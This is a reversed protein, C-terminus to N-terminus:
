GIHRYILRGAFTLMRAPMHSFIYKATKTGWGDSSDFFSAHPYKWYTLTKPQPVWHNKFTLLGSNNEETRGMDFILAGSDKANSIAKWLLWPMAGLSNFRVDSCGYKYYLVDKFRLTLISAVPMRDMYAVRISLADGQCRILNQFWAIPVPPVNHRGRTVVFLGYFHDLLEECAGFREVLGARQAHQIRRQVSDKDLNEFVDVPDGRLDLLHLFYTSAPIFGASGKMQGLDWDVPRIELYKWGRSELQAQLSNLLFELDSSSNVLPECHDSFPLSVLRHGTLWSKIDCCIIGNRLECGPSSTTFVVPAYGYTQRLANLWGVTHFISARRHGALFEPWRADQTPDLQYVTTTM